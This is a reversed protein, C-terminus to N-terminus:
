RSFTLGLVFTRTLGPRVGAPRRAVIYTAGLANQVAAQLRVGGDLRYGATLDVVTFADTGGYPPIPGQGAATRMASGSTASAFVDWRAGQLGLSVNLQHEPLYPLEDGAEVNGWPDYDSDFGTRFKGRTWTYSLALPVRLRSDTAAFDYFASAELGWVRAAGGNFQDGTGQGGSSLTDSGLLNDYDNFFGTLGAKARTGRYRYGLEYNISTEPRVGDAAGPGPPAFGRHVGLFVNSDHAVRYDVGAGPLLVDIQSDRIRTPATRDPDFKSYDTRTMDISEFRVGPTIAWRGTSIRDQVFVAWARAAGIRNAQSGPAGVSTLTKHGGIMQYGDESQFRDEQDAHYRVGVELQQHTSGSGLRLGLVSQIGQGYYERNNHRQKLADITSGRGRLIAFEEAYILPSELVSAIKAGLVSQLKHWNRQFEKRYAVTTLDITPSFMGYHRLQIQRHETEIRDHQSGAYRRVPNAQFDSDSLGLYTQNGGQEVYGLKVEIEHFSDTNGVTRYQLKGLYDGLHFGADGGGDIQKFGESRLQYTELMWGWNRSSSGVSLRAKATAHSGGGLEARVKFADPVRTSVLNLAGGNTRPGFKIQSSGKRVEVAEMRGATPFYYASPAAYPAPAILTGDEMLTVRSSRESGSGRMGINPRLGFGEEEQVNVGPVSRLIRHIDGFAAQTRLLEAGEIRSASGPIIEISEASGVVMIRDNVRPKREKQELAAREVREDGTQEVQEDGTQQARAPMALLLALLLVLAPLAARL